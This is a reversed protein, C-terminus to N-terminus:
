AATSVTSTARALWAPSIEVGWGPADPVRVRGDEVRYPDEVFLGDQWPCGAPGEISLELYPGANPIAALLHMTCVTVLSRNASHPTCPLGAAHAMRVVDLTRVLGGLYMVDPQVVDVVRRATIQDWVRLELGARRRDRRPRPGRPGLV